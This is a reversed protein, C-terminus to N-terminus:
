LFPCKALVGQPITEEMLKFMLLCNDGHGRGCGALCGFVLWPKCSVTTLLLSLGSLLICFLKCGRVLGSLKGTETMRFIRSKRIISIILFLICWKNPFIFAPLRLSWYKCITTGNVQYTCTIGDTRGGLTLGNGRLVVQFEEPFFFAFAEFWWDKTCQVLNPLSFDLASQLLHLVVCYHKLRVWNERKLLGQSQMRWNPWLLFFLSKNGFRWWQSLGM